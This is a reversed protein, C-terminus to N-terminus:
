CLLVTCCLSLMSAAHAVCSSGVCRRRRRRLHVQPARHEPVHLVPQRARHGGHVPVVGEDAHVAPVVGVQQEGHRAELDADQGLDAHRGVAEGVLHASIVEKM